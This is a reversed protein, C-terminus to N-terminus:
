DRILNMVDDIISSNKNDLYDKVAKLVVGHQANVIVTYHDTVLIDFYVPNIDGDPLVTYKGVTLMSIKRGSVSFALHKGYPCDLAIVKGQVLTPLVDYNALNIRM